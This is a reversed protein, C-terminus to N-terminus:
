AFLKTVEDAAFHPWSADRDQTVMRLGTAVPTIDGIIASPWGIRRWAQRLPDVNNPVAACLLCGSALSGLPDLAFERCLRRALDPVPLQDAYLRVGTRSASAMEAVATIIGGETPDHMAKALGLAAAQLAPQVVSIGPAYLYDAAKDLEAASWGRALLVARKERAILSITEVPLEGALLLIDGPQAGSGTVAQGPPVTGLMAGAVIPRTVADTVETHGGAAAVNLARCARGIEDFLSTVAEATMGTPLLLTPLYFRPVAGCVALDNACVHLAYHGIRETAFTIPDSKVALWEEDTKNWAILAADEGIGPGLELRPDETPLRALCARLLDPPLKGAPLSGTEAQNMPM